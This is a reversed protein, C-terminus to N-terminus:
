ERARPFGTADCKTMGACAPIWNRRLEDNGRVRSDLGRRLEDNGRLRSDLQTVPLREM